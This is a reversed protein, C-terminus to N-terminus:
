IVPFSLVMSHFFRQKKPLDRNQWGWFYVTVTVALKLVEPFRFPHNIQGFFGQLGGSMYRDSLLSLMESLQM